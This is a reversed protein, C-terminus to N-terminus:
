MKLASRVKRPPPPDSTTLRLADPPRKTSRPDDPRNVRLVLRLFALTAVGTGFVAGIAPVITAFHFLIIAVYGVAMLGGVGAM